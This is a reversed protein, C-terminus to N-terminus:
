KNAKEPIEIGIKKCSQSQKILLLERKNYKKM